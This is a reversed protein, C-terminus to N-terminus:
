THKCTIWVTSGCWSQPNEPTEQHEEKNQKWCLHTEFLNFLSHTGREKQHNLIYALTSSKCKGEVDMLVELLLDATIASSQSNASFLESRSLSTVPAKGLWTCWFVNVTPNRGQSPWLKTKWFHRGPSSRSSPSQMRLQLGQRSLLQKPDSALGTYGHSAWCVGGILGLLVSVVPANWCSSRMHNWWQHPYLFTLPTEDPFIYNNIRRLMQRLMQAQIISNLPVSWVASLWVHMLGLLVWQVANPLTIVPSM